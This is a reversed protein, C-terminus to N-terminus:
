PLTMGARADIAAITVGIAMAFMALLQVLFFVFRAAITRDTEALLTHVATQLIRAALTLAALQGIAPSDLHAVTAVLVIGAFVPLNEVCNAHARMTRRYAPSGHPTDGPFDTLRKRGTIILSWRRVGVGVAMVVLTWAAFGLLMWLSLSM